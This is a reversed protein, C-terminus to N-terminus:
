PSPPEKPRKQTDPTRSAIWARAAAVNRDLPQVADVVVRERDWPVWERATREVDDWTPEPFPELGRRRGALRERHVAADSCVCEVIALATGTRGALDPWWDKAERVASVADVIVPQGRRLAPEAIASVVAYAALGTAFSREIGSRLMAAEIPDVSLVIAGLETALADALASKGTGPLGSIVILV